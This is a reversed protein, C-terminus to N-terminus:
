LSVCGWDSPKYKLVCSPHHRCGGGGKRTAPTSAWPWSPCQKTGSRLQAGPSLCLVIGGGLVWSGQPALLLPALLCFLRRRSHSSGGPATPLASGQSCTKSPPLSVQLGPADPHPPSELEAPSYKKQICWTSFILTYVFCFSHPPAHPLM